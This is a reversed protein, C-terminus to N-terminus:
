AKMRATYEDRSWPFISPDLLFSAGAFILEVVELPYETKFLGEEIGQKVAEAIIPALRKTSQVLSKQHMVINEKKHLYDLLAMNQHHTKENECLVIRIKEVPNINWDDIIMRLGEAEREIGREIVADLM